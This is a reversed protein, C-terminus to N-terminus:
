SPSRYREDDIGARQVGVDVGVVPVVRRAELQQLAVEVLAVDDPDLAVALIQPELSDLPPRSLGLHDTRLPVGDGASRVPM